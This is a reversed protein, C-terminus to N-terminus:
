QRQFPATVIESFSKTLGALTENIWTVYRLPKNVAQVKVSFSVSMNAIQAKADDWVVIHGSTPKLVADLKIFCMLNTNTYGDITWSADGLWTSGMRNCPANFTAVKTDGNLVDGRAFIKSVRQQGSDPQSWTLQVFMTENGVPQFGDWSDSQLDWATAVSGMVSVDVEEEHYADWYGYAVVAIAFVVLWFWERM